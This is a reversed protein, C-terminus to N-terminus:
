GAEQSQSPIEELTIPTVRATVDSESLWEGM